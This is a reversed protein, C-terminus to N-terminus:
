FLKDMFSLQLGLQKRQEPKKRKRRRKKKCHHSWVNKETKKQETKNECNLSFVSSCIVMSFTPQKLGCHYHMKHLHTLSHVYVLMVKLNVPSKNRSKWIRYTKIM